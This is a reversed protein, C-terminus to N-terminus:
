LRHSTFKLFVLLFLVPKGPNMDQTSGMTFKTRTQIHLDPNNSNTTTFHPYRPTLNPNLLLSSAVLPKSFRKLSSVATARPRLRYM